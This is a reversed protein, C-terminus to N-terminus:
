PQEGIRERQQGVGAVIEAVHQAQHQGPAGERHGVPPRARAEGIAHARGRDHGGEGVPQDKQHRDGGDGPLRHVAEHMGLRHRADRHHDDGGDRHRHVTTEAQSSARPLLDSMLMRPAKRCMSASAPTETATTAAAPPMM